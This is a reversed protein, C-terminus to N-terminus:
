LPGALWCFLPQGFGWIMTGLAFVYLGIRAMREQKSTRSGAPTGDPRAGVRPSQRKESEGRAVQRFEVIAALLTTVSGSREFWQGDMRWKSVGLGIVPAALAM